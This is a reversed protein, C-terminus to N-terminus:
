RTVYFVIKAWGFCTAETSLFALKYKAGKALKQVGLGNESGFYLFKRGSTSVDVAHGFIKIDSGLDCKEISMKEAYLQVNDDDDDDERHLM